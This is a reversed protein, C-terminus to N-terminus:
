RSAGAALTQLNHEHDARDLRYWFLAIIAPAYLLVDSAGYTSSAIRNTLQICNVLASKFWHSVVTDNRSQFFLSLTQLKAPM